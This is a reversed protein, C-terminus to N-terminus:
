PDVRYLRGIPDDRVVLTAWEAPAVSRPLAPPECDSLRRPCGVVVVYGVGAERLRERATALPRLVVEGRPYLVYRTTNRRRRAAGRPPGVQLYGYRAGGALRDDVRELFATLDGSPRDGYDDAAYAGLYATQVVLGVAAAVV